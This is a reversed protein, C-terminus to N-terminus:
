DIWKPDQLKKFPMLKIEIKVLSMSVEKESKKSAMFFYLSLFIALIGLIISVVSSIISWVDSTM